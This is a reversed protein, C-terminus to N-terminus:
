GARVDKIVLIEDGTNQFKFEHTLSKGQITKGFDFSTQDFKIKPTAWSNQCLIPISCLFIGLVFYKKLTKQLM